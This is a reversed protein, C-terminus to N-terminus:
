IEAVSYSGELIVHGAKDVVQFVDKPLSWDRHIEQGYFLISQVDYEAAADVYLGEQLEALLRVILENHMRLAVPLQSPTSAGARAQELADYLANGLRGM